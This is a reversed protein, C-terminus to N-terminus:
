ETVEVQESKTAKKAKTAKVPKAEVLKVNAIAIPREVDVIGGPLNLNPNPKVHKKVVNIGKVLIKSADTGQKTQAYVVKLVEGTKGKDKGKVIQVQQGKKVM